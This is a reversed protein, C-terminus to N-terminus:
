LDPRNFISLVPHEHFLQGREIYERLVALSKHGTIYMIRREAVGVRALATALGSRLSHGGFEMRNYGALEAGKKVIRAVQKANMRGKVTYFMRRYGGRGIGPFLPGETIQAIKIWKRLARVACFKPESDIFPLGVQRGQGSQDTKSRRITLILGDNDDSVDSVDLAVIESRRLAGTWGTLILARDRRAIFDTGLNDLIRSLKDLTLASKKEVMLGRLRYIGKATERVTDDIPSPVKGLKHAQSISTLARKITSPKCGTKDLWVIYLRITDSEAPFPQLDVSDTWACFKKWDSQYAVKTAKAKTHEAIERERARLDDLPSIANDHDAALGNRDKDQLM